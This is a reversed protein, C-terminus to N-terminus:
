EDNQLINFFKTLEDDKELNIVQEWLSMSNELSLVNQVNRIFKEKLLPIAEERRSPHGIPNEITIKESTSHDGYVIEIDPDDTAIQVGTGPSLTRVTKSLSNLYDVFCNSNKTTASSPDHTITLKAYSIGDTYLKQKNEDFEMLFYSGAL